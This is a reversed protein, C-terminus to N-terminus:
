KEDDESGGRSSGGGTLEGVVLAAVESRGSLVAGACRGDFCVKSWWTLNLLIM